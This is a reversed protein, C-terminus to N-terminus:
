NNLFQNEKNHKDSLATNYGYETYEDDILEEAHTVCWNNDHDCNANHKGKEEVRTNKFSEKVINTLETEFLVKLKIFHVEKMGNRYPKGPNLEMLEWDDNIVEKIKPIAEQILKNM